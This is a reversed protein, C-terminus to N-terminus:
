GTTLRRVLIDSNGHRGVPVFGRDHYLRAAGNGDEVSLSVAPFGSIRALACVVDLLAGGIGQSQHEPLVAISLEPIDAAVWGCGTFPGSQDDAGTSSADTSSANTGDTTTSAASRAITNDNLDDGARLDEGARLREGTLTDRKDMVATIDALRLWALGIIESEPDDDTRAAVAIDGRRGWGRYYFSADEREALEELEIRARDMSWNFCLDLFPLFTEEATEPPLPRIRNRLTARDGAGVEAPTDDQKRADVSSAVDDNRSQEANM